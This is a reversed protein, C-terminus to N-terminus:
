LLLSIYIGYVTFCDILGNIKISKQLNIESNINEVSDTKM